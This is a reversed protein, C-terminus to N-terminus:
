RGDASWEHLVASIVNVVLVIGSAFVIRLDHMSVASAGFIFGWIAVTVIRAVANIPRSRTSM